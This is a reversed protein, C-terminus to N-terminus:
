VKEITCLLPHDNSRAFDIVQAVKTEAVDRTFVGCHAKGKQHVDLMVRVAQESSMSFFTELVVVVFDMPTYDDNLMVVQYMPPRKLKPKVRELLATQEGELRKEDSM